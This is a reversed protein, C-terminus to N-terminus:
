AFMGLPTIWTLHSVCVGVKYLGLFWFHHGSMKSAGETYGWLSYAMTKQPFAQYKTVTLLWESGSRTFLSWDIYSIGKGM